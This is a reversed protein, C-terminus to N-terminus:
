YCVRVDELSSLWDELAGRAKLNPGLAVTELGDKSLMALISSCGAGVGFQLSHIGDFCKHLHPQVAQTYLHLECM